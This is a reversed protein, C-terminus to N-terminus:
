RIPEIGYAYKAHKRGIKPPIALAAAHYPHRCWILFIGLANWRSRSLKTWSLSRM